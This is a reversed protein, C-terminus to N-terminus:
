STSNGEGVGSSVGCSTAGGGRPLEMAMEARLIHRAAEKAQTRLQESVDADESLRYLRTWLDVMDHRMAERITWSVKTAESMESWELPFFGIAWGSVRVMGTCRAM